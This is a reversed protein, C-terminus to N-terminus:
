RPSKEKPAAPQSPEDDADEDGDEKVGAKVSVSDEDKEVISEIHRLAEKVQEADAAFDVSIVGGETGVKINNALKVMPKLVPDSGAAMRGLAILGQIVQATDTANQLTGADLRLSGFAKGSLEGMEVRVSQADKLVRAAEDDDDMGPIESASIFVVSGARPMADRLPKAPEAVGAGEMATIGHMLREMTHAMLLVRRDPNTDPRQYIFWEDDADEGDKISHITRNQETIKKYHPSLAPLANVAEDLDKTANIIIIGQDEDDGQGYITVGKVENILALVFRSEMGDKEEQIEVRIHDLIEKGIQSAHMAEFDAHVVWTADPAVWRPEIPGALAVGAASVLAACSVFLRSTFTRM